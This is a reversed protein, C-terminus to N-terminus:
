SKPLREASKGEKGFFLAYETLVRQGITVNKSDVVFIKGEYEEAAICASQYTGSLKSSLTVVVVEDGAEVAEKFFQEFVYPTAQSTTPLEEGSTLREYFTKHDIDIGDKYTQEGFTVQLPVVTIGPTNQPIDSGSDTMIRIGM